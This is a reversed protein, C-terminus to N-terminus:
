CRRGLAEIVGDLPAEIPMLGLDLARRMAIADGPPTSWYGEFSGRLARFLRTVAPDRLTTGEVLLPGRGFVAKLDECVGPAAEEFRAIDEETVVLADPADLGGHINWVFREIGTSPMRAGALFAHGSNSAKAARQFLRDYNTTIVRPFLRLATGHHTPADADGPLELLRTVTEVLETRSFTLEFDTAISAIGSGVAPPRYWRNRSELRRSLEAALAAASPLGARLSIGSGVWLSARREEVAKVLNAPLLVDRAPPPPPAAPQVATAERRRAIRERQFNAALMETVAAVAMQKLDRSLRFEKRFQGDVWDAVRNRFEDRRKADDSSADAGYKLVKFFALV